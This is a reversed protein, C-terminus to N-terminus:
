AGARHGRRERHGAGHDRAHGGAPGRGAPRAGPRHDVQPERGPAGAPRARAARALDRLLELNQRPTKGFGIGPDVIISEARVAWPSRARGLAAALDRGGGVRRRDAGGTAARAASRADARLARRARRRAAGACRRRDRRQRRQPPGRRCRPGGRRGDGQPHGREPARGAAGGPHGAISRCSARAAGRRRAGPRARAPDVRRRHGPHRRGGRGDAAGADVAPRSRRADALGDGSFSDPTVNLIGMVYTRSGWAFRSRGSARTARHAAPSAASVAPVPGMSGAAFTVWSTCRAASSWRAARRAAGADLAADSRRRRRRPVARRARHGVRGGPGRRGARPASDPVDTTVVTRRAAVGVVRLAEVM